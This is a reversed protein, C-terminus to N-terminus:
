IAGPFSERTAQLLSDPLGVDDFTPHHSAQVGALRLSSLLFNISSGSGVLAVSSIKPRLAKGLEACEARTEPSYRELRRLDVVVRLEPQSSVLGSVKDKFGDGDLRGDAKVLVWPGDTVIEVRGKPGFQQSWRM